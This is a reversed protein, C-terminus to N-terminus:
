ADEVEGNPSVKEIVLGGDADGHIRIAKGITKNWQDPTLKRQNYRGMLAIIVRGAQNLLEDYQQQMAIKELVLQEVHDRTTLEDAM